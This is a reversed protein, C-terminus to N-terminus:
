YHQSHHALLTSYLMTTLIHMDSQNTIESLWSVCLYLCISQIQMAQQKPIGYYLINDM